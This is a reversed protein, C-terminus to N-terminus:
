RNLSEISERFDCPSAKVRSPIFDDDSALNPVYPRRTEQARHWGQVAGSELEIAASVDAQRM